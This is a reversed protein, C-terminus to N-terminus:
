SCWGRCWSSWVSRRRRWRCRVTRCPRVRSGWPCRWGASRSPSTSRRCPPLVWPSWSTLLAGVGRDLGRIAHQTLFDQMGFLAGAAAALLAARVRPPRRRALVLLVLVVALLSGGAQLWAGAPIRSGSTATRAAEGTLFLVLGGVLMVAGLWDARSLRRRSAVAALPLAFLVNTALLPEVIV